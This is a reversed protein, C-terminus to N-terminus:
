RARETHSVDVLAALLGFHGCGPGERRYSYFVDNQCMTCIGAVEINQGPIGLELLQLRNAQWLDFYLRHNRRAFSRKRDVRGAAQEYVDSQVEYCCPGAGPGIGVLLDQPRTGFSAALLEALRVAM